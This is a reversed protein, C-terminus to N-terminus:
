LSRTNNLQLIDEEMCYLMTSYMDGVHSYVFAHYASRFSAVKDEEESATAEGGERDRRLSPPDALKRSQQKDENQQRKTQYQMSMALCSFSWHTPQLGAAFMPM